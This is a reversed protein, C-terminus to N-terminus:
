LVRRFLGTSARESPIVVVPNPSGALLKTAVDETLLKMFRSTGRPTFAISSAEFEDATQLITEAINSGYRIHVAVPIDHSRLHTAVHELLGEANSRRHSIPAPAPSFSRKEIVHVAIVSTDHGLLYSTAAKCTREADTQSAIPILVTEFLNAPPPDARNMAEVM